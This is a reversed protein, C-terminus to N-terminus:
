SWPVIKTEKPLYLPHCPHGQGTKGFCKLLKNTPLLMNMVERGREMYTGGNGWALVIDGIGSCYSELIENNMPGIPDEVKLLEKPDTARYAFLNLLMLANYGFRRTIFILKKVTPDDVRADAKSPNLGIVILQNPTSSSCWSRSLIYRYTRSPSLLAGKRVVYKSFFAM